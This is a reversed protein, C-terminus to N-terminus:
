LVGGKFVEGSKVPGELVEAICGNQLVEVVRLRASGEISALEDGAAVGSDKGLDLLVRKGDGLVQKVTAVYGVATSAVEKTEGKLIFPDLSKRIANFLSQDMRPGMPLSEGPASSTDITDAQWVLGNKARSFVTLSISSRGTTRAGFGETRAGTFERVTYYAIYDSNTREALRKLASLTPAKALAAEDVVAVAATRTADYDLVRVGRWNLKPEAERALKPIVRKAAEFPSASGERQAVQVTDLIPPLFAIQGTRPAQLVLGLM